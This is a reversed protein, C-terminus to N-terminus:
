EGWGWAQRASFEYEGTEDGVMKVLNDVLFVNKGCRCKGTDVEWKNKSWTYLVIKNENPYFVGIRGSLTGLEPNSWYKKINILEEGEKIFVTNKFIGMAQAFLSLALIGIVVAGLLMWNEHRCCSRSRRYFLAVVLALGVVLTLALCLLIPVLALPNNLFVVWPKLVNFYYFYLSLAITSIFFILGGFFLWSISCFIFYRRPKMGIKNKEIKELVEQSIKGKM